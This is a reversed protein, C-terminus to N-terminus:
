RSFTILRNNIQYSKFKFHSAMFAITEKQYFFIHTPDKRYFWSSFDISEDYLWSMCYLVGKPKLLDHLTLFEKSPDSFHEMVECCVIYDYTQDLVKQNPQYIPDYLNLQYGHHELIHTIVPGSGCGFDLGIHSTPHKKIVSATIPSVFNQYRPDEVDNNHTDYRAKEDESSLIQDHKLFIGRCTDCIFYTTSDDQFFLTATSACLPCHQNSM